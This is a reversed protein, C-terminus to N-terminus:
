REAAAVRDRQVENWVVSGRARLPLPAPGVRLGARKASAALEVVTGIGVEAWLAIMLTVFSGGHWEHVPKLTYLIAHAAEHCIVRPMCAWARPLTITHKKPHYIARRATVRDSVIVRPPLKTTGDVYESFLRTVLQQCRLPPYPETVLTAGPGLPHTNIMREWKYVKSRQRDTIKEQRKVVRRRRKPRLLALGHQSNGLRARAERVWRDFYKGKYHYTVARVAAETPGDTWEVRVSSGGSYSESRVSFKVGPFERKLHVRLLKAVQAPGLWDGERILAMLTLDARVATM